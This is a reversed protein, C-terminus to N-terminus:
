YVDVFVPIYMYIHIYVNYVRKQIIYMIYM